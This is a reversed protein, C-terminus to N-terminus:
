TGDNTSTASSSEIPQPLDGVRTETHDFVWQMDYSTARLGYAKLLRQAYVSPHAFFRDSYPPPYIWDETTYGGKARFMGVIEIPIRVYGDEAGYPAEGQRVPYWYTYTDGILLEFREFTSEDVVVEVVGDDREEYWRGAVIECLDTLNTTEVLDAKPARLDPKPGDRPVLPNTGIRSFVAHSLPKSGVIHRLRGDVFSELRQLEDYTVPLKRYSNEHSVIIAMPPRFTDRANWERIFSKQLSGSSYIPISSIIGTALVLGFLLGLTIRWNHTIRKLTLWLITLLYM